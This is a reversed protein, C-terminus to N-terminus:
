TQGGSPWREGGRTERREHFAGEAPRSIPFFDYSPSSTLHSNPPQQKAPEKLVWEDGRRRPDLAVFMTRESANQIGAKAPILPHLPVTSCPM